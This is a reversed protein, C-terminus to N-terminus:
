KKGDKKDRFPRGEGKPGDFKRAPREGDRRPRREDREGKRGEFFDKRDGRTPRVSRDGWKGLHRNIIEAEEEDEAEFLKWRSDKGWKRNMEEEFPKDKSPREKFPKSKFYHKEDDTPM